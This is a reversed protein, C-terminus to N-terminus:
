DRAERLSQPPARTNAWGPRGPFASFDAFIGSMGAFAPAWAKKTEQAFGEKSVFLVFSVLLGTSGEHGKHGEHNM